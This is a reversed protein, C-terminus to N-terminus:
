FLREIMLICLLLEPFLEKANNMSRIYDEGLDLIRRAHEISTVPYYEYPSYEATSNGSNTSYSYYQNIQNNLKKLEPSM